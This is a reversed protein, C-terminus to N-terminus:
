GAPAQVLAFKSLDRGPEDPGCGGCLLLLLAAVAAAAARTVTM